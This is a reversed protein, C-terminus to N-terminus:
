FESSAVAATALGNRMAGGAKPDRASPTGSDPELKFQGTSAALQEATAAYDQTAKDMEAVAKNIQEIGLAQEKSAAAIASVREATKLMTDGLEVFAENTMSVLTSGEQVSKVTGSILDSTSRAAEAARMALSRVENAVVAFGAGATGARAAEVAANLALLNTQFAIEDITKVIKSTEESTRSIKSMSDILQSMSQNARTAVQKAGRMLTDAEQADQASRQTMSSMEELAASTEELSAAQETASASLTNSAAAIEGIMERMGQNVANMRATMHSIETRGCVEVSHSLDNKRMSGALGLLRQIPRNVLRQFLYYIALMLTAIGGGGILLSQNRATRAMQVVGEAATRVHLGGLVRRSSGHCHHCSADNLIPQFISLYMEGNIQEEFLEGTDKGDVILRAAAALAAPNRLFGDLEKGAAGPMTTFTLERNVDFISVDISPVKEKLRRLQLIVDKNRGAGLADFTSGEMAIALLQSTLRGQAHISSNQSHINLAIMAGIAAILILTIIGVVQIWLKEHFLTVPNIKMFTEGRNENKAQETHAPM